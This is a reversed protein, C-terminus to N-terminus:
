KEVGCVFMSEKEEIERERGEPSSKRELSIPEEWIRYLNKLFFFDQKLKHVAIVLRELEKIKLNKKNSKGSTQFKLQQSQLYKKTIFGTKCNPKIM